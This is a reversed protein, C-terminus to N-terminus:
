QGEGEKTEFKLSYGSQSDLLPDLMGRIGEELNKEAAQLIWKNDAVEKRADEICEKYAKESISTQDYNDDMFMYDLSEMKVTVDTVSVKPLTVIIKKGKHNIKIEDAPVGAKVVADYSVYYRGDEGNAVGSYISEYSSLEGISRISELTSSVVVTTKEGQSQNKHIKVVVFLVLFLVLVIVAGKLIKKVKKVPTLKSFAEAKKKIGTRLRNGKTHIKKVQYRGKKGGNYM